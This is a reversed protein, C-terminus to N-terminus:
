TRRLIVASKQVYKTVLIRRHKHLLYRTKLLLLFFLLQQITVPAKTDGKKEM